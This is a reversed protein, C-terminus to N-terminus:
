DETNKEYEEGTIPIVYQPDCNLQKALDWIFKQHMENYKEKTIEKKCKKLDGKLYAEAPGGDDSIALGVEKAIKFPFMYDCYM